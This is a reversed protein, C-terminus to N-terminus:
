SASRKVSDQAGRLAQGEEESLEYSSSHAKIPKAFISVRDRAYLSSVVVGDGEENLFATAFSQNGGSDRFPNFRTTQIGRISTRVRQDITQLRHAMEEHSNGLHEVGNRINVIADELSKADKGYLFRNLRRELRMVWITLAILVVLLAYVLIATSM